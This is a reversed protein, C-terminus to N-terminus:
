KSNKLTKNTKNRKKNKLTAYGAGAALLIFLGSGVPTGFTQNTIDDPQVFIGGFNQNTVDDSGLTNGFSQNSVSLSAEGNRLMGSQPAARGDSSGRQFVGQASAGVPLCVALLLAAVKLKRKTKNNQM